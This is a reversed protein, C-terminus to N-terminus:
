KVQIKQYKTYYYFLTITGLIFMPVMWNDIPTTPVDTVNDDFGPSPPPTQAFLGVSANLLFLILVIQVTKFFKFKMM